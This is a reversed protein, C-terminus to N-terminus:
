AVPQTELSRWIYWTAVTCWPKWAEAVERAESRSVPDGSFYNLSIGAILSADDLPLVNPRRLFFILFMEATWRGVGRISMLEAIIAEDSMEQWDDQHLRHETFHMALDVLYDVKRASLGVARMDDVKLKLVREPTMRAPLKAFKTWLAQASKMSIQQGVISRALTAFADGGPQLALHALRPILRKMVRDRRVLQRCAEAWYAPAGEPPAPLSIKAKPAPAAAPMSGARAGLTVVPLPAPQEAPVPLDAVLPLQEFEMTDLPKSSAM